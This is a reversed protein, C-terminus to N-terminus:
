AAGGLTIAFIHICPNDPFLIKDINVSENLPISQFWITPKLSEVFQGRNTCMGDCRFAISEGFCANNSLWDSLGIKIPLARDNNALLFTENFYGNDAAGLVFVHTYPQSSPNIEIEQNFSEVNNYPAELSPFLFPIDNVYVLSTDPLQDIPYSSGLATFNAPTRGDKYGFGNNGFHEDLNIHTYIM